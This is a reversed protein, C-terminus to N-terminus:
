YGYRHPPYRQQLLYHRSTTTPQPPMPVILHEVQPPNWDNPVNHFGTTSSQVDVTQPQMQRQPRNVHVVKNRSGDTIKM